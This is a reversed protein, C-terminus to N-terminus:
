AIANLDNLITANVAIEKVTKKSNGLYGWFKDPANKIFNPLTTTFYCNKSDRVVCSLKKKYNRSPSRAHNARKIKRKQQVIARTMWPTSKNVKKTKAPIFTDICHRCMTTFVTWLSCVDSGSDAFHTLCTELCEVISTDDARTYDKFSKTNAIKPVTTKVIPLSLAVLCHDSLGDEISVTHESFTRNLFHVDLISCSSGQVRTPENVVQILDHTLMIDFIINANADAKNNAQLLEWNVGPLNLDGILCIKKNQYLSMHEQLKNLYDPTADPPRYFAFLM